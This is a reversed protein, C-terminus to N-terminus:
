PGGVKRNGWLFFFFQSIHPPLPLHAGPAQTCTRTQTYVLAQVSPSPLALSGASCLPWAVLDGPCLISPTTSVGIPLFAAFPGIGGLGRVSLGVPRVEAHACLWWRTELFIGLVWWRQAKRILEEPGAWSWLPGSGGVEGGNPRGWWM